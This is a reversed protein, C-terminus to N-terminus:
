HHGGGGGGSGGGGGGAKFKFISALEALFGANPTHYVGHEHEHKGGPNATHHGAEGAVFSRGQFDGLAEKITSALGFGFAAQGSFASVAGSFSSLTTALNAINGTLGGLAFAGAIRTFTRFDNRKGAQNTDVHHGIVTGSNDTKIKTHYGSREAEYALFARSAGKKSDEIIKEYDKIGLSEKAIAENKVDLADAVKGGALTDGDAAKIKDGNADRKGKEIELIKEKQKNIDKVKEALQTRKADTPDIVTGNATKGGNLKADADKFKKEANIYDLSSQNGQNDKMKERAERRESELNKTELDLIEKEKELLRKKKEESELEKNKTKLEAELNETKKEDNKLTAAFAEDKAAKRAAAGELGGTTNKAALAGFSGLNIGTASTFANGLGTHRADFSSKSLKQGSELGTRGIKQLLGNMFNNKVGGGNIAWRNLRDSGAIKKGVWGVTGQGALALGGLAAGGVLGAAGGAIVKTGKLIMGGIEGSASEVIKTAKLLLTIVIACQIMVLVLIIGASMNTTNKPVIDIDVIFTVLLLLFFYIPAAFAAKMLNSFWEDWGFGAMHQTAPLITSVFAFPAFIIAIFLSIMRGILSILAVGFSYAVVLYMCGVLILVPIIVGSSVKKNAVDAPTCKKSSLDTFFGNEKACALKNYFDQNSFIQPKFGAVISTSIPQIKKILNHDKFQKDEETTDVATVKDKQVTGIQNYFVLALSNSVDVVVETLFFSFNILIAIIVVSSLMKKPNAGGLDMDLVLSLAAFLLILIFFINAFDRTVTWGKTLLDGKTYLASSLTLSAGVDFAKAAVSMAWAGLQYPIIYVIQAICGAMSGDDSGTVWNFLACDELYGHVNAEPTYTDAAFVSNATLRVGHQPSLTTSFPLAIGVFIAISFILPVIRKM